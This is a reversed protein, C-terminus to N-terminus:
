DKGRNTPTLQHRVDLIVPGIGGGADDARQFHHACFALPGASTMVLVYARHGCADCREHAMDRVSPLARTETPAAATATEAHQSSM